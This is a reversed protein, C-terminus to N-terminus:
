QSIDNLLINVDVYEPWSSRGRGGLNILQIGAKAPAITHVDGIIPPLYFHKLTTVRPTLDMLCQRNGRLCMLIPQWVVPVTVIVNLLFKCARNHLHRLM